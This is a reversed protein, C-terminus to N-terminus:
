KSVFMRVMNRVVRDTKLEQKGSVLNSFLRFIKAPHHFAVGAMFSLYLQRKHKIVTRYNPYWEPVFGTTLEEWRRIQSIQSYKKSIECEPYPVLPFVGLEDLGTRALRAVYRKTLLRDRANEGIVGIIIFAATKIGLRNCDRVVSAIQELDMQKRFIKKLVRQSGSEPALTIHRCGSKKMLRLLGLDVNEPRIGTAAIWTINLNRKLIERCTAEVRSRDLTFNDDSIHFETIKHENICHEIENVINTASRPRWAREWFSKSACFTCSNPCGRSTVIATFRSNSPGQGSKERFYKEMPFLERAPFPLDDLNKILSAPQPAPNSSSAVGAIKGGPNLCLQLLAEEGEGIIAYDAGANLFDMHNYSAHNGGVVVPLRTHEKLQKLLGTVVNHQTSYRVSIALMDTDSSIRSIIEAPELGIVTYEDKYPRRKEIAEGVADIVEVQIGQQRLYAALYAIGLPVDVSYTFNYKRDIIPPNIFTVKM